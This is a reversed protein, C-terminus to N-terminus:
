INSRWGDQKKFGHKGYWSLLSEPTMPYIDLMEEVTIIKIENLLTTGIGKNRYEKFVQLAIVMMVNGKGGCGIECFIDGLVTDDELAVLCFEPSEKYAKM